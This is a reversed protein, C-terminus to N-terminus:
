FASKQESPNAPPLGLKENLFPLVLDVPHPCDNHGCAVEHYTVDTALDRLQRAFKIPILSDQTGHYILLPQKLGAVVVTNDFRDRLLFGPKRHHVVLDRLRAFGSELILAAISREAALVGIPGSGISRGWAVIRTADIDDRAALQDYADLVNRRLSDYNASGAAEGYGPFELLLVSYGHHPYQRFTELWWHACEANGHAFLIVPRRDTASQAANLFLGYGEALDLRTVDDPLPNPLAEKPSPYLMKRQLFFLLLLYLAVALAILKIVRLLFALIPTAFEMM